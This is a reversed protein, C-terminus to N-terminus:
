NESDSNTKKKKEQIIHLVPTKKKFIHIKVSRVREKKLINSANPNRSRKFNNQICTYAM